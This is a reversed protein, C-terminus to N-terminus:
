FGYVLTVRSTIDTNELGPPPNSERNIQYSLRASLAGSVKATLATLSLLSTNTSDSFMTANQSLTLASNIIWKGNLGGRAAFDNNVLGTTFRTQRLGPGAEVAFSFKPTNFVKYGVGISESFRRSFGSFVDSEYALTLLVYFDPNFNYNGEYGAFYRQRSKVGDDEQYDLQGRLAQKWKRKEKVVNVGIAVGKNNTNGSAVFGGAEGSGSWGDLVGLSALREEHAAAQVKKLAAAQADIEAISNPNTKKAVEIIAKLQAPNTAAADIMDAVSPPLPVAHASTASLLLIAASLETAKM